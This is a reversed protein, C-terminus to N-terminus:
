VACITKIETIKCKFGVNKFHETKSAWDFPKEEVLKPSVTEVWVVDLLVLSTQFHMLSNKKFNQNPRLNQFKFFSIRCLYNKNWYNQMQLWCKQFAWNQLSLWFTEGEGTWSICNRSMSWRFSCSKNSLANTIKKFNQNPRM